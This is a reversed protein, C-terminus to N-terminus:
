QRAPSLTDEPTTQGPLRRLYDQVLRDDSTM